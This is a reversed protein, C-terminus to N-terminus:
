RGPGAVAHRGTQGTRLQADRQTRYWVMGDFHALQPVGWSEWPTLEAPAPRWQAADGRAVTWPQHGASTRSARLWWQKWHEGWRARRGASEHGRFDEAVSLATDYGGLARM